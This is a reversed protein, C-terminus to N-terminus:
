ILQGCRKGRMLVFETPRRGWLINDVGQIDTEALVDYCPQVFVHHSLNISFELNYMAAQLNCSRTKKILLGLLSRALVFHIFPASM